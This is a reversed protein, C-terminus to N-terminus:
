CTFSVTDFRGIRRGSQPDYADLLGRTASEGGSLGVIVQGDIVLLAM